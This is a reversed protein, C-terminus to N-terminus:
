SLYSIIYKVTSLKRTRLYHFDTSPPVLYNLPITASDYFSSYNRRNESLSPINSVVGITGQYFGDIRHFIFSLDICTNSQDQHQKIKNNNVQIQDVVKILTTMQVVIIQYIDSSTM